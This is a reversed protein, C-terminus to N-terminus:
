EVSVVKGRIAEVRESLEIAVEDKMLDLGQNNAIKGSIDLKGYTNILGEFATAYYPLNPNKNPDLPDTISRLFGYINEVNQKQDLVMKFVPVLILTRSDTPLMDKPYTRILGLALHLNEIQYAAMAIGVLHESETGKLSATSKDYLENLVLKVSDNQAINESYRKMLFDLVPQEVGVVKSLGLAATFLDRTIATQKYAVCYNLDSLYVGLNAAAKVPNNGYEPYRSSENILSANFDAGTAQLIAAAEAPSRLNNFFANREKEFSPSPKTDEASQKNKQCSFLLTALFLLSLLNKM